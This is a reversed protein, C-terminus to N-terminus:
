PHGCPLRVGIWLAGSVGVAADSLALHGAAVAAGGVEAAELAYVAGPGDLRDAGRHVAVAGTWGGAVMVNFDRSAGTVGCAAVMADGSFGVPRLLAAQLDVGEGVIRFGPGDIVTLSRWIGPFRSFPGDGAVTAVSIRWLFGGDGWKRALELTEGRGNAWPQVVYDSPGLVRIM